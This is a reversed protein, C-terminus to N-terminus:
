QNLFKQMQRDTVMKGDDLNVWYNSTYGNSEKKMFNGCVVNNCVRHINKKNGNQVGPTSNHQDYYSKQSPSLDNYKVPTLKKTLDSDKPLNKGSEPTTKATNKLAEKIVKEREERSTNTEKGLEEAKKNIKKMRDEYNDPDKEKLEKDLETTEEELKKITEKRKEILKEVEVERTLNQDFEDGEHAGYDDHWDGNDEFWKELEGQEKELEALENKKNELESKKIGYTTWKCNIDESSPPCPNTVNSSFNHNTAPGNPVSFSTPLTSATNPILSNQGLGSGNNGLIGMMALLMLMQSMDDSGEKNQNGQGQSISGDGQYQGVGSLHGLKGNGIITALQENVLDDVSETILKRLEEPFDELKVLIDSDGGDIIEGDIDSGSLIIVHHSNKNIVYCDTFDIEDVNEDAQYMADCADSDMGSPCTVDDGTDSDDKKPCILYSHGGKKNAVKYIDTDELQELNQLEENHSFIDNANDSYNLDAGHLINDAVEASLNVTTFISLAVLLLLVRKFM